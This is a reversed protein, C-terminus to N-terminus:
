NDTTSEKELKLIIEAEKCMMVVTNEEIAVVECEFKDTGEGIDIKSGVEIVNGNVYAQPNESVMVAELELKEALKRIVEKNVDQSFVNVEEFGGRKRQRELFHRWNESAFVDRTIVDHRGAVKPLEIFSMHLEPNSPGSPNTSGAAIEAGAAEPAKKTLVRIWMLAMVSILCLAMVVKKKEAALQGVLRKARHGNHKVNRRM